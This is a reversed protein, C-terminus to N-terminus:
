RKNLIDMVNLIIKHPLIKSLIMVAKMSNGYVSVEKREKSDKIALEVVDKASAMFYDKYWPRKEGDAAINFFETNVPGPCVATVSINKPKLEHNLARSFSLVYSKTAAYVAFDPQPLFASSSALNIVRSNKAMYPITLLTVNTLGACNTNIMGTEVEASKNCAKGIIGYGACNILMKVRPKEQSLVTRFRDTFHPQTIDEDIIICPINIEEKLEELRDLRRAILWIEDLNKARDTLQHVFERGMGSSAGTVIVVNKTMKEQGREEKDAKTQNLM